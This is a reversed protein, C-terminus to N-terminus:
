WGVMRGDLIATLVIYAFYGIAFGMGAYACAYRVFRTRALINNARALQERWMDERMQRHYDKMMKDIDLAPWTGPDAYDSLKFHLTM